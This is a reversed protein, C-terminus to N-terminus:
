AKLAAKYEYPHQVLIPPFRGLISPKHHFVRNFHSSKPPTGSNESVDM